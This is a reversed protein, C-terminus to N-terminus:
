AKVRVKMLRQKEREGYVSGLALAAEKRNLRGYRQAEFRRNLHDARAVPDNTGLEHCECQCPPGFCPMCDLCTRDWTM